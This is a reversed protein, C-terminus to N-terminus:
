GNGPNGPSVSHSADHRQDPHREKNNIVMGVANAYSKVINHIPRATEVNDTSAKLDDKYYLVEVRDGLQTKIIKILPDIM